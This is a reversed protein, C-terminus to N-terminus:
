DCSREWYCETGDTVCVMDGDSGDSCIVAITPQGGCADADPCPTTQRPPACTTSWRCPDDNEAGCQQGKFQTGPPCVVSPRAGCEAEKCNRYSVSTDDDTPEWDCQDLDKATCHLEDDSAMSSPISGCSELACPDSIVLKQGQAPKRNSPEDGSSACAAAFAFCITSAVLTKLTTKV